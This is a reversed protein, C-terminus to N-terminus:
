EAVNSLLSAASCSVGPVVTRASTITVNPLAVTFPLLVGSTSMLPLPVISASSACTREAGDLSASVTGAAAGPPATVSVSTSSSMVTVPSTVNLLACNVRPAVLPVTVAVTFPPM